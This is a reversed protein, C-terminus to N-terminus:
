GAPKERTAESASDSPKAASDEVPKEVEKEVERMGKKFESIGKGLSRALEPLRKGGFLLLAVILILILEPWGLNM